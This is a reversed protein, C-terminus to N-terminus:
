KKKWRRKVEKKDRSFLNCTKPWSGRLDNLGICNYVWVGMGFLHNNDNNNYPIQVSATLCKM